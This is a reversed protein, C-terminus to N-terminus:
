FPKTKACVKHTKIERLAALCTKVPLLRNRDRALGEVTKLVVDEGAYLGMHLGSAGDPRVKKKYNM